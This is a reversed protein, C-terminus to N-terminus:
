WKGREERNEFNARDITLSGPCMICVALDRADSVFGAPLVDIISDMSLEGFEPFDILDSRGAFFGAVVIGFLGGLFFILGNRRKRTKGHHNVKSKPALVIEEAKAPSEERSDSPTSSLGPIRKRFSSPMIAHLIYV